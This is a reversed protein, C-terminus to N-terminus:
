LLKVDGYQAGVQGSSCSNWRRVVGRHSCRSSFDMGQHAADRFALRFRGLFGAGNVMLQGVQQADYRVSVHLVTGHDDILQLDGGMQGPGSSRRASEISWRRADSIQDRDVGVGLERLCHRITEIDREFHRHDLQAGTLQVIRRLDNPLERHFLDPGAGRLSCQSSRSITPSPM